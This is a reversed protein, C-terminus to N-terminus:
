VKRVATGTRKKPTTATKKQKNATLNIRGSATGLASHIGSSAGEPRMFSLILTWTVVKVKVEKASLKKTGIYWTYMQLAGKTPLAYVRTGIYKLPTNLLYPLYRSACGLM